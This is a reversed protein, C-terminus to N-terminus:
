LNGRINRVSKNFFRQLCSSWTVGNSTYQYYRDKILTLDIELNKERPNRTQFKKGSTKKSPFDNQQVSVVIGKVIGASEEISSVILM